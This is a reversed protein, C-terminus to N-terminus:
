VTKIIEKITDEYVEPSIYREYMMLMNLKLKTDLKSNSVRNVIWDEWDQQSKVTKTHSSLEFVQVDPLLVGRRKRENWMKIIDPLIHSGCFQAEWTPGSIQRESLLKIAKSAFFWYPIGNEDAKQRARWIALTKNPSENFWVMAKNSPRVAIHDENICNVGYLEAARDLSKILYDHFFIQTAVGPHLIRCPWYKTQYLDVESQRHKLPINLLIERDWSIDSHSAVIRVSASQIKHRLKSLEENM